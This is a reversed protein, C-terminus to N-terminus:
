GSLCVGLWVPMDLRVSGTCAGMFLVVHGRANRAYGANGQMGLVLRSEESPWTFEPHVSWQVVFVGRVRM